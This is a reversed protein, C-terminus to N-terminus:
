THPVWMSLSVTPRVRPSCPTRVPQSFNTSHADRSDVKRSTTAIRRTLHRRTQTVVPPAWLRARMHEQEHGPPVLHRLVRALAALAVEPAERFGEVEAVVRRDQGLAGAVRGAGEAQGAEAPVKAEEAFGEAGGFDGFADDGGM